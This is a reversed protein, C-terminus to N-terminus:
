VSGFDVGRRLLLSTVFLFTSAVMLAAFAVLSVVNLMVKSSGWTHMHYRMLPTAYVSHTTTLASRAAVEITNVRCRVLLITLLSLNNIPWDCLPFIRTCARLFDLWKHALLIRTVRSRNYIICTSM